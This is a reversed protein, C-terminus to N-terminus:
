PACKTPIALEVVSGCPKRPSLSITGNHQEVIRRTVALGIGSGGEKHSYYLDFAHEREEPTFGRGTDEIRFVTATGTQAVAAVIEGGPPTAEVANKLINVLAQTLQAPDAMIPKCAAIDQRLAIDQQQLVGQELSCVDRLLAAPDTAVFEAAKAKSFGVFDEVIRDLRKMEERLMRTFSAFKGASEPTPTTERELRQVVLQIANLPNRVEHAVAAALRGMASAREQQRLRDQMQHVEATIADRERALMRTSHLSFLYTVFLLTVMVMVSGFLALRAMKRQGLENVTGMSLCVRLLFRRNTDTTFPM